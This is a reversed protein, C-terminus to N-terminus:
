IVIYFATRNEKLKSYVVGLAEWLGESYVQLFYIMVAHPNNTGLGKTDWFVEAIILLVEVLGPTCLSASPSHSHESYLCIEPLM